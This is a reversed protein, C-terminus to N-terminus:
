EKVEFLMTMVRFKSVTGDESPIIRTTADYEVLREKRRSDKIQNFFRTEERQAETAMTTKVKKSSTEVVKVKPPELMIHPLDVDHNQRLVHGFDGRYTHDPIRLMEKAETDAHLGSVLTLKAAPKKRAKNKTAFLHTWEGTEVRNLTEYLYGGNLIRVKSTDKIPGEVFVFLGKQSYEALDVVSFRVKRNRMIENFKKRSFQRGQARVLKAIEDRLRTFSILKESSAEFMFSAKGVHAM